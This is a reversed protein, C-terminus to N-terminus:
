CVFWLRLDVFLAVGCFLCVLLCCLWRRFACIVCGIIDFWFLSVYVRVFLAFWFLDLCVCVVFLCFCCVVFWLCARLCIADCFVLLVVLRFVCILYLVASCWCYMYLKCIVFLCFCYDFTFLGPQLWVFCDCTFWVFWRLWLCFHFLYILCILGDFQVVLGFWDDSVDLCLFDVVFLLVFSNLLFWVFRLLVILLWADFVFLCLFFCVIFWDNGFLLGFCCDCAFCSLLCFFSLLWSCDLCVLVFDLLLLCYVFDFMIFLVFGVCCCWLLCGFGFCLSSVVIGVLLCCADLLCCLCGAFGFM